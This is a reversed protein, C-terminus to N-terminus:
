DAVTFDLYPRSIQVIVDASAEELTVRGGSDREPRGVARFAVDVKFYPCERSVFTRHLGTSLGGETTFVRMLAERTMGSKITRMQKLAKAVWAVHDECLGRRVAESPQQSFHNAGIATVLLALVRVCHVILHDEGSGRGLDALM